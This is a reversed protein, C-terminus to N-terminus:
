DDQLFEKRLLAKCPKYSEYAESIDIQNRALENTNYASKLDSISGFFTSNCNSFKTSKQSQLTTNLTRMTQKLAISETEDKFEQYMTLM